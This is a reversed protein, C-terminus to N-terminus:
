DIRQNELIKSDPFRLRFKTADAKENISIFFTHRIRPLVTSDLFLQPFSLVNVKMFGGVWKWKPYESIKSKIQYHGQLMAHVVALYNQFITTYRKEPNLNIANTFIDSTIITKNFFVHGQGLVDHAWSAKTGFEENIPEAQSNILFTFM